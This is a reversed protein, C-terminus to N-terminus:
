KTNELYKQLFWYCLQTFKESCPILIFCPFRYLGHDLATMNWVYLYYDTESFCGTSFEINGLEVSIMM